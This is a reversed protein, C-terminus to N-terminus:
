LSGKNKEGDAISSKHFVGFGKLEIDFRIISRLSQRGEASVDSVRVKALIGPWQLYEGFTVNRDVELNSLPIGGEVSPLLATRIACVLSSRPVDYKDDSNRRHCAGAITVKM